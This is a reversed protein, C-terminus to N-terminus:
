QGLVYSEDRFWAAVGKELCKSPRELFLCKWLGGPGKRKRCRAFCCEEAVSVGGANGLTIMFCAWLRVQVPVGFASMSYLLGWM